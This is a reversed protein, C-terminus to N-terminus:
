KVRDGYRMERLEGEAFYLNTWFQGKGPNYTWVDVNECSEVLTLTGDSQRIKKASKECYSDILEPQGCKVIVEAKTDGIDVIDGKCRLSEANAMGAIFFTTLSLTALYYHTLRKM